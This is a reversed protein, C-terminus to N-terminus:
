PLYAPENVVKAEVPEGFPRWASLVDEVRDPEVLAVYSPGNGSISASLAGAKLAAVVPEQSYGLASAVLAGNLNMATFVDGGKLIEYVRLFEERFLRLRSAIEEFSMGRGGKPLVVAVLGELARREEIIMERNDTIVLGGLLSASADDFAGTVTVKAKKAAEVSIKLVQYPSLRLGCLEALALTAANAVASSSKLGGGPPVESRVEFAVPGPDCLEKFTEYVEKLLSSPFLFTESRRAKVEVELSVAFASGKWSAIANLVSGGAYAKAM